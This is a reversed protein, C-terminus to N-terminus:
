MEDKRADSPLTALLTFAGDHQETTLRGGAAQFRARLGAIGTGQQQTVRSAPVVGDNYIELQLGEQTTDLRIRVQTADAHRLINTTAERVAFGFLRNAEPNTTPVAPTEVIVTSVGAAELVDKANDLEEGLSVLRLDRVLQRTEAQAQAALSRVEAITKQATQLHQPETSYSLLRDALEAKLAIIQLHHGQIDHLDSAFRLRERAVALQGEVARAEDLRQILHWLWGSVLYTPPPLMVFLVLAPLLGAELFLQTSPNVLGHVVLFVLGVLMLWLRHARQVLPLLISLTIWLATGGYFTAGPIFLTVLWTITPIALVLITVNSHPWGVGYGDRLLWSAYVCSVASGVFCALVIVTQWAPGNLRAIFSTSILAAIALLILSMGAISLFTYWWTINIDRGAPSTQGPGAPGVPLQGSPRLRSSSASM